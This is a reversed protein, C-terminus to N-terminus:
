SLLLVAITWIITIITMLMALRLAKYKRSAVGAINYVDNYTEKLIDTNLLSEGRKIYEDKSYLSIDKYYIMNKTNSSSGRPYVVRVIFKMTIVVMITSFTFIVVWKPDYIGMHDKITNLRSLLAGTVIGLIGLVGVAKTDAQKIQDSITNFIFKPFDTIIRSDKETQPNM